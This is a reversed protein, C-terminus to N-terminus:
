PGIEFTRNRRPMGVSSNYSFLLSQRSKRQHDAEVSYKPGNGIAELDLSILGDFKSIRLDIWSQNFLFQHRSKGEILELTSIGMLNSPGFHNMQLQDWPLEVEPFAHALNVTAAHIKGTRGESFFRFIARGQLEM